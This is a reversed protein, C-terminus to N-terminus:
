GVEMAFDVTVSRGVNVTARKLVTKFGAIGAIVEYDGPLLSSFNYAGTENTTSSRDFGTATNTLKVTVGPMRASSADTVSGVISGTAQGFASAAAALVLLVWVLSKLSAVLTKGSGMVSRRLLM